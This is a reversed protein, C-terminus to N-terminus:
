RARPMKALPKSSSTTPTAVILAMISSRLEPDTGLSQLIRALVARPVPFPRKNPGLLYRATKVPQKTALIALIQAYEAETADPLLPELVNPSTSRMLRARVQPIDRAKTRNALNEIISLQNSHTAMFIYLGELVDQKLRPNAVNPPDDKAPIYGDLFRKAYYSLSARPDPLNHAAQCLQSVVTPAIPLRSSYSNHDFAYQLTKLPDGVRSLAERRAADPFADNSLLALEYQSQSNFYSHKQILCEVARLYELLIDPPTHPSTACFIQWSSPIYQDECCLAKLWPTDESTWPVRCLHDNLADCLEPTPTRTQGLLRSRTVADLQPNELAIILDAPETLLSPHSTQLIVARRMPESQFELLHVTDEVSATQIYGSLSDIASILCRSAELPAIKVYIPYLTDLVANWRTRTLSAEVLAELAILLSTAPKRVDIRNIAWLQLVPNDSHLCEVLFEESVYENENRSFALAQATTLPSPPLTFEVPVM